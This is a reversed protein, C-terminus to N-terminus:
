LFSQRLRATGAFTRTHNLANAKLEDLYRVYEFDLNLAAGYHEGSTILRRQLRLICQPVNRIV